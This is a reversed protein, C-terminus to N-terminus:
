EAEMGIKKKGAKETLMKCSPRAVDGPLDSLDTGGRLNSLLQLFFYIYAFNTDNIHVHSKLFTTSNPNKDRGCDM